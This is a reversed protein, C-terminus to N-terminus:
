FRRGDCDDTIVGDRIYGHYVGPCNISPAVTLREPPGSVQWPPGFVLRRKGDVERTSWTNFDVCFDTPGPLRVVLPLRGGAAHQRKFDDSLWEGWTSELLWPAPWADGIAPKEPREDHYRIPWSM